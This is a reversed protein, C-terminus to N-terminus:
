SSSSSSSSLLLIRYSGYPTSRSGNGRKSGDLSSETGYLDEQISVTWVAAAAASATGSGNGFRIRSVIHLEAMRREESTSSTM